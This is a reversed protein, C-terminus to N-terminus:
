GLNRSSQDRNLRRDHIDMDPGQCIQEYIYLFEEIRVTLSDVIDRELILLDPQYM